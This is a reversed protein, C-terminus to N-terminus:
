VCDVIFLQLLSEPLSFFFLLCDLFFDEMSLLEHSFSAEWEPFSHDQAVESTISKCQEEETM